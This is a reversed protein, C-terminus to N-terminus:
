RPPFLEAGCQPCIGYTRKLVVERGGQTQIHREKQGRPGLVIGCAACLPPEDEAEADGEWDTARSALVADQLMRVRLKGLHEDLAVEIERFTAKRHQLRWEKMGTIVEESLTQWERDFEELKM